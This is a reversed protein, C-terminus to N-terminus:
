HFCRDKMKMYTNKRQPAIGQHPKSQSQGGKNKDWPKGKYPQKGEAVLALNSSQSRGNFKKRREEEQLLFSTLEDFTPANERVALGIIFM